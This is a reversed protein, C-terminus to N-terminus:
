FGSAFSDNVELMAALTLIGTLADIERADLVLLGDKNHKNLQAFRGIAIKSPTTSDSHIVKYLTKNEHRHKEVEWIYRLGDKTFEESRRGMGTPTVQVTEGGVQTAEPHETMEEVREAEIVPVVADQHREPHLFKITTQGMHLSIIPSKWEAVEKQDVDRVRLHTGFLNEKHLTYLIPPYPTESSAFTALNKAAVLNLSPSATPSFLKVLDSTLDLISTDHKHHLLYFARTPSLESDMSLPINEPKLPHASMTPSNLTQFAFTTPNYSTSIFTQTMLIQTNAKQSPRPPHFKLPLFSQKIWFHPASHPSIIFVRDPSQRTINKTSPEIVHDHFGHSTCPYTFYISLSPFLHNSLFLQLVRLTHALDPSRLPRTESLRAVFSNGQELSSLVNVLKDWCESSTSCVLLVAYHLPVSADASICLSVQAIDQKTISKSIVSAPSLSGKFPIFLADQAVNQLLSLSTANAKKNRSPCSPM